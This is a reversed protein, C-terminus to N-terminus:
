RLDGFAKWCVFELFSFMGANKQGIKSSIQSGGEYNSSQSHLKQILAYTSNIDIVSNKVDTGTNFIGKLLKPISHQAMGLPRTSSDSGDIGPGFGQSTKPIFLKRNKSSTNSIMNKMYKPSEKIADDDVDLYSRSCM